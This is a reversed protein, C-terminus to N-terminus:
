PIIPPLPKKNSLDFKDEIYACLMPVDEIAKGIFDKYKEKLISKLNHSGETLRIIHFQSPEIVYNRTVKYMTWEVNGKFSHICEFIEAYIKVECDHYRWTFAPPYLFPNEEDFMNIKVWEFPKIKGMDYALLQNIPIEHREMNLFNREM